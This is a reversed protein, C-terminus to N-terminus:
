AHFSQGSHHLRCTINTEALDLARTMDSARAQRMAQMGKRWNDAIARELDKTDFSVQLEPDGPDADNHAVAMAFKLVEDLAGMAAVLPWRDPEARIAAVFRQREPALARAIDEPLDPFEIPAICPPASM